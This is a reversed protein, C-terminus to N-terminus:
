KLAIASERIMMRPPVRIQASSQGGKFIKNLEAVVVEGYAESDAETATLAPSLYAAISGSGAYAAVSIDEPVRIGLERLVRCGALAGTWADFFIATYDLDSQAMWRSLYEYAHDTSQMGPRCGCNVFYQDVDEVLEREVMVERWGAIRAQVMGAPPESMIALIKRHGLDALHNVAQRGSSNEDITISPAELGDVIENVVVTPKDPNRLASRLHDPFPESNPMLVTADNVGTLRNLDVKQLSEYTLLDFGWDRKKGAAMISRVTSDYEPSPWSPRIIAIRKTVHHHLERVVLRMRGAPREIVGEERLSHLTKVITGQAVGMTEALERVTPIEQGARYTAFRKRLLQTLEFHKTLFTTRPM